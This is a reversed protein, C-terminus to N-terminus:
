SPVGKLHKPQRGALGERGPPAFHSSGALGVEPFRNRLPGHSSTMMSV